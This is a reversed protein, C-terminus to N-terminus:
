KLDNETDQDGEIEKRAESIVNRVTRVMSGMKGALKPLDRPGVVLFAILLILILEGGGVQLM